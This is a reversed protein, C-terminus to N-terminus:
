PLLQMQRLLWDGGWQYMFFLFGCCCCMLILLVAVLISAIRKNSSGRTPSPAIPEAATVVRPRSKKPPEAAALEPLESLEPLSPIEPLDPMEPEDDPSSADSTEHLQRLTPLKEAESLDDFSPPLMPDIPDTEVAPAADAFPETAALPKDAPVATERGDAEDAPPEVDTGMAQIDEATEALQYIMIVSSGLQVAQDPELLLPGASINRGDVFTGNTSGLDELRYGDETLVLRAHLRSVEVDDIVIDAVPDRGLSIAPATLPITQGSQPGKRIVLQYAQELVATKEWLRRRQALSPEIINVRM